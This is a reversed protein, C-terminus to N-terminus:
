ESVAFELSPIRMAGLLEEKLQLSKARSLNGRHHKLNFAGQGHGGDVRNRAILKTGMERDLDPAEGVDSTYPEFSSFIEAANFGVIKIGHPTKIPFKEITGSSGAHAVIVGVRDIHHQIINIPNNSLQMIQINQNKLTQQYEAGGITDSEMRGAIYVGHLVVIHIGNRNNNGNTNTLNSEQMVISSESYENRNWTLRSVVYQVIMANNKIFFYFLIPSLSRTLVHVHFYVLIYSNDEMNHNNYTECFLCNFENMTFLLVITVTIMNECFGRLFHYFLKDVFSNLTWVAGMYYFFVFSCLPQMLRVFNHRTQLRDMILVTNDIRISDNNNDHKDYSRKISELKEKM